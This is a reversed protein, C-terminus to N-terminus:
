FKGGGGGHSRGSSSRHTSSGGSSSSEKPRPRRSVTRYLFFEASNTVNLSGQRVYEEARTQSRVSKLKSKMVGTVILAVVFAAALCLFLTWMPDFPLKPMNGSDYPEGTRAQTVFNECYEAYTIFADMYMQESLYYSTEEGLFEIGADTFATIGFGCTSIYWDREEMSVLLLVGDHEEGFGYGNGDYFDDAYERPSKSGISNATVIVIDFNLRESIEDLTESVYQRESEDLLSAGDVLRDEKAAYCPLSLVVSLLIFCIVLLASRKM